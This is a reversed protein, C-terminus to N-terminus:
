NLGDTTGVTKAFEVYRNVPQKTKISSNGYNNQKSQKLEFFGKYNSAIAEEIILQATHPDNHSLTLLRRYCVELSHQDKYSESRSKKYELWEKFVDEFAINVFSLDYEKKKREKSSSINNSTNNIIRSSNDEISDDINDEINNHITSEVIGGTTSEVMGGNHNGSRPLPKVRYKCFKVNNVYYDEKEIAGSEVLRNIIISVRSKDSVGIWDCVYQLSLEKWGFNDHTFGHIIGYVLLDNGKLNYDLRARAPIVIYNDDKIRVSM